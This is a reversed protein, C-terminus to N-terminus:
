DLNLLTLEILFLFKGEGSQPPPPSQSQNSGGAVNESSIQLPQVPSLLTLVGTSAKAEHPSTAAERSPKSQCHPQGQQAKSGSKESDPTHVVTGLSPSLIFETRALKCPITVSTSVSPTNPSPSAGILFM